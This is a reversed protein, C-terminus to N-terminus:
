RRWTLEQASRGLRLILLPAPQFNHTDQKFKVMRPPHHIAPARRLAGDTDIELTHATTNTMTHEGLVIAMTSTTAESTMTPPTEETVLCEPILESHPSTSKFNEFYCTTSTSFNHCPQTFTFIIFLQLVKDVM